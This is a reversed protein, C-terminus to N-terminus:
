AMLCTFFHVKSLNQDIILHQQDFERKDSREQDSNDITSAFILTDILYNKKHQSSYDTNVPNAMFKWKM